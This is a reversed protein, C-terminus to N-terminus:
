EEVPRDDSGSALSAPLAASRASDFYPNGKLWKLWVVCFM